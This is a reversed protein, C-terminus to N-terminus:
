RGRQVKYDTRPHIECKGKIIYSIDVWFKEKPEM